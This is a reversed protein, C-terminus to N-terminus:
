PAAVDPDGRGFGGPGMVLQPEAVL